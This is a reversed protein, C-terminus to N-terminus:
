NLKFYKCARSVTHFSGFVIIRDNEDAKQLAQRCADEVSNAPELKVDAQHANVTKAMLEASLGRAVDLGACFWEDVESSVLQVVDEVAKDALMAVVALTRGDVPDDALLEALSKAAQANHAVDVIIRPAQLICQYRGALSVQQLGTAIAPADIPLQARLQHLAVIAAAANQMQFGGKLAPLPLEVFRFDAGNLQWGNANVGQFLYDKGAQLLPTGTSDAVQSISEPMQLGGYIAPKGSRFIGAKERGITEIDAGLWDVHDVAVSTVLAVDPNIVNVADLRGGLGVELVVVDLKKEAFLVLAALTGFEFYTLPIDGRAQDVQEFAECLSNDDISQGNVRIRENYEFLHPSTYCGVSYHAALLISELMAVCSGKGNTGAVTIVPVPFDATLKLSTLVQAVRELGLDIEKPNLSEQWNLWDQLTNFKM